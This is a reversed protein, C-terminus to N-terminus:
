TKTLVSRIKASIINYAQPITCIQLKREHQLGGSTFNAVTINQNLICESPRFIEIFIKSNSHSQKVKQRTILNHIQMLTENASIQKPLLLQILNIPIQEM